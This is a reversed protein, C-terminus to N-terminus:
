PHGMLRLRRELETPELSDIRVRKRRSREGAVIALRGPRVGLARAVLRLAARNAEGDAPPRTIRVRLAGDEFPGVGDRSAGPTVHLDLDAM